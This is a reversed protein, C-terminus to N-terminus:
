WQQADAGLRPNDRYLSITQAVLDFAVTFLTDERTTDNRRFIPYAADSIDGEVWLLDQMSHLGKKALTEFAQKRHRSSTLSSTIQPVAQMRLYENAHFTVSTGDAINLSNKLGGPATEVTVIRKNHFSGVNLNQGLALDVPTALDIAEEISRATLVDRCVFAVAVGPGPRM